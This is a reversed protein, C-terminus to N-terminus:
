ASPVPEFDFERRGNGRKQKAGFSAMDLLHVPSPRSRKLRTVECFASPPSIETKFRLVSREGSLTEPSLEVKFFLESSERSLTDPSLEFKLASRKLEEVGARM